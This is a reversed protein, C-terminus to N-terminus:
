IMGGEAKRERNGGHGDKRQMKSKACQPADDNRAHTDNSVPRNCPVAGAEKTDESCDQKNTRNQEKGVEEDCQTSDALGKEKSNNAQVEPRWRSM